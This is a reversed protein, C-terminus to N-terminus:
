RLKARNGVSGLFELHGAVAVQHEVDAWVDKGHMRIFRALGPVFKGGEVGDLAFASADDSLVEPFREAIDDVVRRRVFMVAVDSVAAVRAYDGDRPSDALKVNYVNGAFEPPETGGSAIEAKVRDWDVMPLASAGIVLDKDSEYAATVLVADFGANARIILVGAFRPNRHMVDLADNISKVVVMEMVFVKSEDQQSALLTQLNMLSTMTRLMAEHDTAVLALLVVPPGSAM